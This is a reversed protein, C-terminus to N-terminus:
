KAIDVLHLRTMQAAKVSSGGVGVGRQVHDQCLLAWDLITTGDSIDTEPSLLLALCSGGLSRALEEMTEAEPDQRLEQWVERLSPHITQCPPWIIGKRHQKQEARRFLAVSITVM